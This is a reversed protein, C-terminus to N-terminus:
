NNETGTMCCSLLEHCSNVFFVKKSSSRRKGKERKEEDFLIALSNCSGTFESNNSNVSNTTFVTEHLSMIWAMIFSFSKNKSFEFIRTLTSGEFAVLGFYLIFYLLTNRGYLAWDVKYRIDLEIFNGQKNLLINM